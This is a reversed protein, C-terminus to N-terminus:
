KGDKNLLDQAERYGLSAAKQFYFISQEVEGLKQYTQGLSYYAKANGPNLDIIKGFNKIAMQFNGVDKYAHGRNNYASEYRPQIEIAKNYDNIALPYNGLIQLAAARNNYYRPNLPDLDIARDYDMIAQQARGLKVYASGRCNYAEAYASHLEVAKNCEKLADDYRGAEYYVLGRNFYPQSFDPYLQTVKNFDELALQYNRLDKYALGRSVYAIATEPFFKIQHSWLTISDKWISIQKITVGSLVGSLLVIIAIIIARYAKSLYKEFLYGVGIGILIFPGISPLYTYRDAAFQRGVQIIGITPMLTVLYYLLMAVFLKKQDFVRFLFFIVVMFLIFPGFIEFTLFTTDQTAPYLPSLNLPVVMKALYFLYAYLAILIRIQLSFIELSLLASTTHHAWLTVLATLVGIILFPLKEFIVAKANMVKKITLRKYIYYDLVLLVIPLSVAMPKSMLSLIFFIFSLAYFRFRKDDTASVYKIYSLLSLLYFSACLVDKRESIWVVSEVHLPHIGFLLSTVTAIVVKNNPRLNGTKVLKLTLIFVLYTNFSHLVNNTLHYGLPNLGWVSYDIALSFMTLPLWLNVVVATLCWKLFRFDISQINLNEYVYASDDWNVFGNQLAPLYVVFTIFVVSVASLWVIHRSVPPNHQIASEKKNQKSIKITKKKM